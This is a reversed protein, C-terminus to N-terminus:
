KKLKRFDKNIDVIVEEGISIGLSDIIVKDLIIGLSDGIKVIRKIVRM